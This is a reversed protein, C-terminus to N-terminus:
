TREETILIDITTDTIADPTMVIIYETNPLLEYSFGEDKGSQAQGPSTGFGAQSGKINVGGTYTSGTYIRALCKNDGYRRKANRLVVPTGDGNITVNELINYPTALGSSIVGSFWVYEDGTKIRLVRVAATGRTLFTYFYMKGEDILHRTRDMAVLHGNRNFVM